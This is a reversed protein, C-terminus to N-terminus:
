GIGLANVVCVCVSVHMCLNVPRRLENVQKLWSPVRVCVVNHMNSGQKDSEQVLKIEVVAHM